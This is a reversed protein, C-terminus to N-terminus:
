KFRQTVWRAAFKLIKDGRDMKIKFVWHGTLVARDSPAEQYEWTDNEILSQFEVHIAKDFNKYYPSRIPKKLSHLEFPSSDDCSANVNGLVTGMYIHSKLVSLSASISCIINTSTSIKDKLQASHRTGPTPKTLCDQRSQKLTIDSTQIGFDRDGRNLQLHSEENESTANDGEDHEKDGM